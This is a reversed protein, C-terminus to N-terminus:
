LRALMRDESNKISLHVGRSSNDVLLSTVAELHADEEYRQQPSIEIEGITLSQIKGPSKTPIGVNHNAPYVLSSGAHILTVLGTRQQRLDVLLFFHSVLLFVIQDVSQPSRLSQDAFVLLEQGAFRIGFSLTFIVLIFILIRTFCLNEMAPDVYFGLVQREEDLGGCSHSM